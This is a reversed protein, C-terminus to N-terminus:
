RLPIYLATELDGAHTVSRHDNAYVELSPRSGDRKLKLMRVHAMASYWAPELFDYSGRLRVEYYHGGGLTKRILGDAPVDGSVPVALDCQFMGKAPNVKHYATFPPGTPERGARAVHEALRPFGTEMANVMADLDGSFPITLAEAQPLMTEGVFTIFPRDAHPDLTGRLMALGLDYDRAITRELNATMFRFLFPLRGRMCWSVETQGDGEELEWWVSCVSKFPRSFEIRQEIRRPPDFRVHTLRGAGVREGEWTYWGGEQDPHDSFRLRTGPEHILWPSWDRWHTLDRIRDFVTSREVAMSLSRRVEYRGKLSGLYVLGALAVTALVILATLM